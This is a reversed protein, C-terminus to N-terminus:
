LFVADLAAASAAPRPPLTPQAWAKPSPHHHQLGTSSPPRICRPIKGSCSSARLL